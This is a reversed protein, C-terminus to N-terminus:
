NESINISTSKPEPPDSIDSIDGANSDMSTKHVTDRNPTSTGSSGSHNPPGNIDMLEDSFRIQRSAKHPTWTYSATLTKTNGGSDRKQSRSKSQRSSKSRKRMNDSDHDSDNHKEESITEMKSNEKSTQRSHRQVLFSEERNLSQDVDSGWDFTSLASIESQSSVDSAASNERRHKISRFTALVRGISHLSSIDVAPSPAANTQPSGKGFNRTPVKKPKKGNSRDNTKNKRKGKIKAMTKKAKSTKRKRTQKSDKDKNDRSRETSATQSSDEGDTLEMQHKERLKKLALFWLRNTRENKSIPQELDFSDNSNANQHVTVTNRKSSNQSHDADYKFSDMRDIPDIVYSSVSTISNISPISQMSDITTTRNFPINLGSDNDNTSTNTHHSAQGLYQKNHDRINADTFASKTANHSASAAPASENNKLSSVQPHNLNHSRLSTSQGGTGGGGGGGGGGSGGNSSNTSQTQNSRSNQMSMRPSVSLTNNYELSATNSPSNILPSLPSLVSQSDQRDQPQLQRNIDIEKPAMDGPSTNTSIQVNSSTNSSYNNRHTKGSKYSKLDDEENNSTNNSTDTNKRPLKFSQKGQRNNNNLNKASGLNVIISNEKERQIIAKNDNQYDNESTDNNTDNNTDDEDGDADSENEDKNEVITANNFSVSNMNRKPTRYQTSAKGAKTGGSTAGSAAAAARANQQRNKLARLKAIATFLSPRRGQDWKHISSMGSIKESADSSAGGLRSNNNTNTNTNTNSNSNTNNKNHSNDLLINKTGDIPSPSPSISHMPPTAPTTSLMPSIRTRNTSFPNYNNRVNTNANSNGNMKVGSENGSTNGDSNNISASKSILDLRLSQQSYSKNIGGIHLAGHPGVTFDSDEFASMMSLQSVSSQSILSNDRSHLFTMGVRVNKRMDDEESSSGEYSSVDNMDNNSWYNSDERDNTDNISMNINNLNIDNNSKSSKNGDSDSTEAEDDTSRIILITSNLRLSSANKSHGRGNGVPPTVANNSVNDMVNESVNKLSKNNVTGTTIASHHQKRHGKHKRKRKSRKERDRRSRHKSNTHIARTSNPVSRVQKPQYQAYLSPQSQQRINSNDRMKTSNENQNNGNNNHNTNSGHKNMHEGQKSDDNKGGIAKGAKLAHQYKILQLIFGANPTAQHRKEKVLKLAEVAKMNYRKMFYASAVTVSRSMGAFCHILIKGTGNDYDFANMIFQYCEGFHSKIDESPADNIRVVKYIFTKPFANEIGEAVCLIHTIKHEKLWEKNYAAGVSGLYLNPELESPIGDEEIKKDIFLQKVMESFATLKSARRQQIYSKIITKPDLTNTDDFTFNSTSDKTTGANNPLSLHVKKTTTSANTSLATNVQPVGNNDETDSDSPLHLSPQSSQSNASDQSHYRHHSGNQAIISASSLPAIGDPSINGTSSQPTVNSSDNLDSNNNSTENSTNNTTNNSEDAFPDEHQPPTLIIETPAPKRPTSSTSM